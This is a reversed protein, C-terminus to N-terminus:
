LAYNPVPPLWESRVIGFAEHAAAFAEELTEHWTDACFVRDLSHYCLLFNGSGDDTIEFCFPLVNSAPDTANAAHWGGHPFGTIRTPREPISAFTTM